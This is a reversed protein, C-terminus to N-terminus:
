SCLDAHDQGCRVASCYQRVETYDESDLPSFNYALFCIISVYAVYGEEKIIAQFSGVLGHAAKGRELQM